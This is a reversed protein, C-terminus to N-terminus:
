NNKNEHTGEQFSAVLLRAGPAELSVLSLYRGRESTRRLRGCRLLNSIAPLTMAGGWCLLTGSLSLGHEGTPSIGFRPALLGGALAAGAIAIAIAFDSLSVEDHLILTAIWGVLVAVTLLAVFNM